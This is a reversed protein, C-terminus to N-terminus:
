VGRELGRQFCQGVPFARHKSTRIPLSYSLRRELLDKFGCDPLGAQDREPEVIASVGRNRKEDLGRAAQSPEFSQPISL